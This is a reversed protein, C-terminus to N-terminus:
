GPLAAAPQKSRAGNGARKVVAPPKTDETGLVPAKVPVAESVPDVPEDPEDILSFSQVLALASLDDLSTWDFETVGSRTQVLYALTLFTDADMKHLEVTVAREWDPIRMGTNAKIARAEKITLDPLEAADSRYERGDLVLKMVRVM